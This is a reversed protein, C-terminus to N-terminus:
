GIFGVLRIRLVAEDLGDTNNWSARARYSISSGSMAVIADNTDDNDSAFANTDAYAVHSPVQQVAGLVGGNLLSAASAAEISARGEPDSGPNNQGNVSVGVRLIAATAFLPVSVDALANLDLTVSGTDFNGDSRFASVSLLTRPVQFVLAREDVQPLIASIEGTSDDVNINEGAKFVPIRANAGVGNCVLISQNDSRDEMDFSCASFSDISVWCESTGDENFTVTEPDPPITQSCDECSYEFVRGTTDGTVRVGCEWEVGRCEFFAAASSYSGIPLGLALNATQVLGQPPVLSDPLNCNDQDHIRVLPSQIDVCQNVDELDLPVDTEFVGGLNRFQQIVGCPEGDHTREVIVDYPGGTVYIQAFGNIDTTVPQNLPMTRGADQYLAALSDTGSYTVTVRAFPSPVGKDFAQFVEGLLARAQGSLRSVPEKLDGQVKGNAPHVLQHVVVPQPSQIQYQPAPHQHGQYRVDSSHVYPSGYSDCKPCSGKQYKNGCQYCNSM